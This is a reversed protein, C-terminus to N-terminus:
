ANSLGKRITLLGNILSLAIILSGLVIMMPYFLLNCDHTKVACVGILKTPFLIVMVGLLTQAFIIGLRIQSQKLFLLLLGLIAIAAGPGIEAMASWYCKMPMFTKSAVGDVCIQMVDLCPQFITQPGIAVLLGLVIFLAGCIYRTFTNKM